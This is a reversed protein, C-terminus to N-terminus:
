SRPRPPVAGRSSAVIWAIVAKMRRQSARAPTAQGVGDRALARGNRNCAIGARVGRVVDVTTLTRNVSIWSYLNM